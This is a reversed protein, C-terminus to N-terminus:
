KLNENFWTITRKMIDLRHKPQAIMHGEDKYVVMQTKVGLTRLAHWFEFSQPTPCEVDSDGVLVLTPTKASKIHTIPASRAYVAPDDYVSAGFFPIMWQDIGNEGYYSQWNMIGAGAVAARFRNTQTVGWMTMYGGYSWGGIGIRSADIPLTKSVEEAGALIDHFDGYGFDKVNARTFAEGAGYSGRPNPFLVFYGESSLASFDFFTDPWALRRMSSPGGHIYVVLPYKRQSDYHHPYLLWGQINMGESTWHISKAEGWMPKLSDNVRTIQKWAGIEGAWVEPPHKLSSRILASRRVDHSFSVSISGGFASITEPGRWLTTTQRTAIDVSAIGTEGDVNEEFLIQNSSPYWHLWSASAKMDPTLNVPEGGIPPIMFVDGGTVGQDSMLGGIFAITKGDPSWRPVAVQLSPKFISKTEGTATMVTYIQAIWWNNDGDGPAASAVFARGDPSWDYEYVYLDAPSIQRLRGSPFEVTAIRQEYIKGEIVGSVPPKAELPGASKPLNETFLVAVNKGDPSWRPDALLGKVHTLQQPVGGDAPVVYLQFQGKQGRDSLFALHRGDPSWALDHESHPTAGDGATIRRPTSSSNLSAVYVATNESPEHDKGQLEEVWAVRSGDFSITTEKFTRVKFLSDMLRDISPRQPAEARAFVALGLFLFSSCVAIGFSRFGKAM